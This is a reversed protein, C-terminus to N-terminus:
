SRALQSQRERVNLDIMRHTPSGRTAAAVLCFPELQRHEPGSGESRETLLCLGHETVRSGRPALWRSRDNNETQQTM